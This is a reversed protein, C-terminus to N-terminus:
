RRSSGGPDRSGVSTEGHHQRRTWVKAEQLKKRTMLNGSIEEQHRRGAEKSWLMLEQQQRRTTFM